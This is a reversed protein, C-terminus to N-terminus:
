RVCNKGQTKAEYMATDARNIFNDATEGKIYQAIGFSCTVPTNTQFVHDAIERRIKDALMRATELDCEPLTLIFEEGGWRGLHDSERTRSQVLQTLEILVQDGLSHGFNDNILKFDDIDFFILSLNRSYRNSLAIYNEMEDHAKRRSLAGTLPDHEAMHKLKRNYRHLLWYRYLMVAVLITIVAFIQWLTSDDLTYKYEVMFWRNLIEDHRQQPIEAIAKNLLTLLVPADPSVAVSIDWNDHLRDSIALDAIQHEKLKHLLSAEAGALADAEGNIIMHFGKVMNDIPILQAAPFRHSLIDHFASKNKVAIRQDKLEISSNHPLTALVAPISLYPRSFNLYKSRQVTQMAGAVIECEGNRAMILTDSWTASPVIKFELDLYGLIQELYGSIVGQHQNNTYSEYPYWDPNICVTLSQTNELYDLERQTFRLSNSQPQYIMNDLNYNKSISNTILFVQAMENFRSLSLSGFNGNDDYALKKLEQGEFVLADLSRNQSNYHKEIVKATEVINEFAYNWGRLSARYFRETIEPNRQAFERTTFLIDAYMDFGYDKPHIINYSVGQQDLLYPENSIYSAMADTKGDILDQVNYSHDQQNFETPTIGAQLLMALLEGVAKAENTIMVRKGRLDAPTAINSHKTTLLMLPSKQYAAFLALLSNRTANEILLSSRGVGFEAQGSIVALYPPNEINFENLEVDLNEEAYFGKQVAMYYGAFQFQHKWLLQLRVKDQAWTYTAIFLSLVIWFTVRM